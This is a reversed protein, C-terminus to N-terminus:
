DFSMVVRVPNGINNMVIDIGENVKEFPLIKSVSRSLDIKKTRVLEILDKMEDKRNTISSTIKIEKFLFEKRYNQFEFAIEEWPAGMLVVRGAKRVSRIAQNIVKNFGVAEIAVSAGRGDTFEHIKKIPEEDSANIVETAGAWKANELKQMETDVVFVKIEEYTLAALMAHFGIAGCGYVVVSDGKQIEAMRVGHFASALPSTIVTAEEFSIEDPLYCINEKPLKYYEAYAGQTGSDTGVIRHRECLQELDRQCYYCDGCTVTANGLVRDGSKFEQVGKGVDEVIGAAEHGMIHPLELPRQGKLSYIDSSCIASAKVKMLVENEMVQVMPVEEIVLPKGVEKLIAAKM